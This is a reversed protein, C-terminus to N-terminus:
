QPWSASVAVSGGPDHGPQHVPVPFPRGVVATWHEAFRRWRRGIVGMWEPRPLVRRAAPASVPPHGSAVAAMGAAGMAPLHSEEVLDVPRCFADAVIQPFPDSPGFHGTLIIPTSPPLNGTVCIEMVLRAAFVVGEVVGWAAARSETGPVLGQLATRPRELWLPGREPVVHPIFVPADVIKDPTARGADATLRAVADGSRGHGLLRAGMALADGGNIAGHTLWRSPLVHSRTLAVPFADPSASCTTIVHTTGVTYLPPGNEELGLFYAAAATDAAGVVVPVGAPVGLLAAAPGTLRGLVELSPKVEPLLSLPIGMREALGPLWRHSGDTLAMLGLYSAQTPDLAVRGTLLRGLWTGVLGLTTCKEAVLPNEKAAVPWALAMTTAPQPRNAVLQAEAATRMRVASSCRPPLAPHDWGIGPGIPEGAADLFLAVPSHVATGVARVQETAPGLARCAETLSRLWPGPDVEGTGARRTDGHSAKSRAAVRGNGDVLIAKTASTGLDVGLYLGDSM